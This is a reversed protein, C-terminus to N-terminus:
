HAEEMAGAFYIMSLLVFVLAQVFSTFLGLFMIPLPALYLGAIAILIGLVLEHGFMNGFLRFSLSLVRAFHGILEIILMLPALAPMPGLFHKIYKAGHLKIGLYHTYIFVCIACGATTNLSSTPAFGGPLMGIINCSFILLFLTCIFPFFARGEEGAISVLFDEANGIIVEFVNQAGQPIMNISSSALRALIILILMVLWTYTVHPPLNIHIAKFLMDLFLIPHEM